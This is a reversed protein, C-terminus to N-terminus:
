KNTTQKDKKQPQNNRIQTATTMGTAFDSMLQKNMLRENM